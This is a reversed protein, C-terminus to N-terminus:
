RSRVLKKSSPVAPSLQPCGVRLRGEQPAARRGSLPGPGQRATRSAPRSAKRTSAKEPPMETMQGAETGGSRFPPFDLCHGHLIRAPSVTWQSSASILCLSHYKNKKSDGFDPDRLSGWSLCSSGQEGCGTCKREEQRVFQKKGLPGMGVRGCPLAGRHTTRPRGGGSPRICLLRTQVRRSGQGATSEARRLTLM